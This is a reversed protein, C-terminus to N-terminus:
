TRVEGVANLAKFAPIAKYKVPDALVDRCLLPRNCYELGLWLNHRHGVPSRLKGLEEETCHLSGFNWVLTGVHAGTRYAVYKHLNSLVVADYPMVALNLSRQYVMTYLSGGQELFHVTNWCPPRNADEEALPGMDVYARRTGPSKKLKEICTRVQPMAIAGYAGIWRDGTLFKDARSNYDRLNCHHETDAFFHLVNATAWKLDVSRCAPVNGQFDDWDYSLGPQAELM